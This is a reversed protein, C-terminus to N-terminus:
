PPTGVSEVAAILDRDQMGNASLNALINYQFAESAEKHSLGMVNLQQFLANLQLLDASVKAAAPTRACYRQFGPGTARNYGNQSVYADWATQIDTAIQARRSSAAVSTGSGGFIAQYSALFERAHSTNLRTVVVSFDEARPRRKKPMDDYDVVGDAAALIEDATPERTNIGADKLDQQLVPGPYATQFAIKFDAPVTGAVLDQRPVAGAIPLDFVFPIPPIFTPITAGLTAPTLDLLLSDPGFFATPSIQRAVSIVTNLSAAIAAINSSPDFSRAIFGPVDFSGSGSPAVTSYNADAPLSIEGDAILDMGSDLKASGEVTPDRLVFIINPSTITMDGESSLDGVEATGGNTDINLDGIVTIKENQGVAFLNAANPSGASGINVTLPGYSDVTAFLDSFDRASSSGFNVEFNGGSAINVVTAAQQTAPLALGSSGPSGARFFVIGGVGPTFDLFAVPTVDGVNNNIRTQTDDVVNLGGPGELTGDFEVDGSDGEEQNGDSINVNVPLSVTGGFIANGSVFIDGNLTTNPQASSGNNTVTLSGIPSDSTGVAALIVTGSSQITLDPTTTNDPNIISGFTINGGTITSTTGTLAVTAGSLDIPGGATATIAAGLGLYFGSPVSFTMSGAWDIDGGISINVTNTNTNNTSTISLIQSGAVGGDTIEATSEFTPTTVTFNGGGTNIEAEVGCAEGCTIEVAGGGTTITGSGANTFTSSTPDGNIIFAGGNTIVPEGFAITAGTNNITVGGGTTTIAGNQNDIFSVTGGAVFSGATTTVPGAVTVTGLSLVDNGLGVTTTDLSVAQATVSGSTGNGINVLGGSAVFAGSTTVTGTVTNDATASTSFLSVPVDTGTSTINGSIVLGGASQITVGGSGGWSIAGGLNAGLTASTANISLAQSGTGVGDTIEASSTFGPSSLTFNGGGTNVEAGISSNETSAITVAGGGTTITGSGSNTFTSGLTASFAGGVGSGTTDIANGIAIEGNNTISIAGGNTTINGAGNDLLSTTGGADLAGGNITLLGSIAVTAPTLTGIPSVSTVTNISASAATLTANPDSVVISGIAFNAGSATFAGSIDIAGNVAIGLTDTPQANVASTYISVPMAASGASTISGTGTITIDNAGEITVGATGAWTIAGNINITGTGPSTDVTFPNNASTGTGVTIANDNEFNGGTTAASFGGGGTNIEAGITIGADVAISVNGGATTITGTSTSSFIGGNANAAFSGGGTGVAAGITVGASSTISVAGNATTITGTNDFAAATSNATFSGSGTTIAAAVIIAGSTTITANGGGTSVTDSNQFSSGSGAFDGGGTAISAGSGINIGTTASASFSGGGTTIPAGLVIAGGSSLAVGLTFSGSSNIGGSLTMDSNSTLSLTVNATPVVSITANADQTLVGADSGAQNTTISVSTGGNLTDVITQNFIVSGTLNGDDAGNEIDVNLPDLLWTGADGHPASANPANTVQLYDGSTEIYGGNGGIPGGRATLTAATTTLGDSWLVISGGNGNSTADADITTSSDASVIQAHALDGGGHPGGGIDVTGGGAPGSVNINASALNVQGGTIAVNGGIGGSTNTSADISGSVQVQGQGGNILVNNAQIVGTHRIALAYVDGAALASFGLNTTSSAAPTSGSQSAVPAPSVVKATIHSGKESVLVDSGALMAVVGDPAVISGENFVQSGILSVQNARIQGNNSVLGSVSTFHDVGGLFDQNSFSAAAAYFRNVDVIAGAGFIVGAPNVLYVSGNSLLTGNISSPAASNVRNLVRSAANPQLFDVTSGTSIDFKSFNLITNRTGTRITTVSGRESVSAAGYAVSSLQVGARARPALAAVIPGVACAVVIRARRRRRDARRSNEVVNARSHITNV